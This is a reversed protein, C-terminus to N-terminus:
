KTVRPRTNRPELTTRGGDDLYFNRIDYHASTIAPRFVRGRPCVHSASALFGKVYTIKKFGRAPTSELTRSGTTEVIRPRTEFCPYKFKAESIQFPFPNEIKERGAKGGNTFTRLFLLLASISNPSSHLPRFFPHDATNTLHAGTEQNFRPM